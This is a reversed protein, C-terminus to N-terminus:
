GDQGLVKVAMVEKEESYTYDDGLHCGLVCFRLHPHSVMVMPTGSQNYM